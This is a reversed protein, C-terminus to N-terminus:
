RRWKINNKVVKAPLGALIVNPPYERNNIKSHSAVISNDNIISGKLISCSNAIWVHNGIFVDAQKPQGEITHWDSDSIFVNWACLFDKGIEIKNSVMILTDATIGADSEKNKGGLILVSSDSLFFKVGQGVVFDGNVQLKANAGMKIITLNKGNMFPVIRFSGVIYLQSTKDKQIKFRIFPKTIIIKGGGGDIKQTFYFSRLECIIKYLVRKPLSFPNERLIKLTKKLYNIMM